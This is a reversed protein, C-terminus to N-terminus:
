QARASHVPFLASFENRGHGPLMPLIGEGRKEKKENAFPISAMKTFLCTHHLFWCNLEMQDSVDMQVLWGQSGEQASFSFQTNWSSICSMERFHRRQCSICRIIKWQRYIARSLQRLHPHIWLFLEGKTENRGCPMHQAQGLIGIVNGKMVQGCHRCVGPEGTSVVEICMNMKLALVTCQKHFCLM